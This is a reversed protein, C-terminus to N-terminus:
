NPTRKMLTPETPCYIKGNHFKGEPANMSGYWTGLEDIVYFGMTSYYPGSIPLALYLVGELPLNKYQCITGFAGQKEYSITLTAQGIKKTDVENGDKDEFRFSLQFISQLLTFDARGESVLIVSDRISEVKVVSKAFVYNMVEDLLGKQAALCPNSNSTYAWPDDGKQLQSLLGEPMVDDPVYILKLEDGEEAIGKLEDAPVLTTALSGGTRPKLSGDFFSKQTTNYVYVRDGTSFPHVFDEVTAATRTGGEMVAEVTMDWKREASEPEEEEPSAIEVDDSCCTLSVGLLIAVSMASLRNAFYDFRIM